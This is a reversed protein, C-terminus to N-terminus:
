KKAEAALKAIGDRIENAVIREAEGAKTDFAPRMYPKAAMKSTGYEIFAGYFTDGQFDGDKTQVMVGIRGKKSKMARLKLSDRLQGPYRVKAKKAQRTVHAVARKAAREAQKETAGVFRGFAATNEGLRRLYAPKSVPANAKAQALIPKAAKRMAQRLVKKELKPTLEALAKTLEGLGDVVHMGAKAM